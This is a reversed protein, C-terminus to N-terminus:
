EYNKHVGFYATPPAFQSFTPPISLLFSSFCYIHASFAFFVQNIIFLLTNFM